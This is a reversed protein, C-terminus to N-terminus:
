RKKLSVSMGGGEMYFLTEVDPSTTIAKVFDADAMRPNMNHACILGGPRVLPLTKQFYDLYGEKDADIFVLDIPGKLEKAKEHGDGEVVTVIKAVGAQVFNQRAVAATDPDIEHTLLKGGTKRLALSLWIASVGNSTGFEAVSKADIAEALTRLLRGDAAPVNMRRGQKQQIEDLAKLIASEGEDKPQTAVQFSGQQGGRGPGAGGFGGRDGPGPGRGPPGDPGGFDGPGGPGPGRGPPGGAGGRIGFQPMMEERNLKGDANKDLKNLAQPAGAIEEASLEGDGNADLATIVPPRMLGFPGPPMQPGPGARGTPPTEPARGGGPPQALVAFAAVLFVTIGACAVMQLKTRKM